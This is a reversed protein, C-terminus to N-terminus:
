KKGEEASRHYLQAQYAIEGIAQISQGDKHMFLYMLVKSIAAVQSIEPMNTAIGLAVLRECAKSYVVIAQELADFQQKETGLPIGALSKLMEEAEARVAPPMTDLINSM